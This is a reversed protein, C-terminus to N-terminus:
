KLMEQYDKLLESYEKTKEELFYSDTPLVNNFKFYNEAETRLNDLTEKRSYWDKNKIYPDHNMISDGNLMTGDSMKIFMMHIKPENDITRHDYKFVKNDIVIYQGKIHSLKEKCSRLREVAGSGYKDIVHCYIRALGYAEVKDEHYYWDFVRCNKYEFEIRYLPNSGSETEHHVMIPITTGQYEFDDLTYLYRLSM